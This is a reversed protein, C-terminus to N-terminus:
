VGELAIIPQDLEKYYSVMEQDSSFCIVQQKQGFVRFLEALQQKRASDYHLWGDDIMIPCLNNRGQMFIFAFRVAMILQDTTGTSLEHIMFQLHNKKTVTLQGEFLQITQYENKTLIRFFETAKKLLNPLQQESLETLLDIVLLASLQYSVWKLSLEDIVTKLDEQEQRLEDLTGDVMMQQRQYLLQQEQKLLAQGEDEVTALTNQLEQYTTPLEAVQEKTTNAYLSGLMENLEAKRKQTDTSSQLSKLKHPIEEVSHLQFKRLLPQYKKVLEAQKEKVEKLTQRTYNDSQYEQAFRVKEMQDAFDSIIALREKLSKGTIPLKTLYPETKELLNTVLKQNEALHNVLEQNENVLILYRTIDTRHTTWYEVRDMKGLHNEEAQLLISNQAAKEEAEIQKMEERLQVLKENSYDLQSLKEQWQQKENKYRDKASFLRPYIGVLLLALGIVILIYRIPTPIFLSIVISLVALLCFLPSISAKKPDKQFIQPNLREFTSLNQERTVIEEELLQTDTQIKQLQVTREITARRLNEAEQEDFFLQPPEKEYWNWQQELPRMDQQNKQLSQEMWNIEELLKDIDYRQQLLQQIQTENELYFLYNEPQDDNKHQEAIEQNLRLIEQNLFRHQQYLDNLQQKEEANAEVVPMENSQNIQQLEEYLSLNMVQKEALMLQEKIEQMRLHQQEITNQAITLSRTIEQFKQEQQEKENIRQQLSHYDALKQNLPPQSGKGKYLTQANKLYAERKTLIQQSGSVGLSLLSQQLNEEDMQNLLSLQEQQFTFVRQFLEKTLPHLITKLTAEDGIQDNFYVKAQGRQQDKFREIQVEGHLPHEIWLRGGYPGGNKPQYDKRRKGKTPFGFLLTQIFQYLTSKGIENAGYLLQNGAQFDIKQQQWKGFGVIEAAILKM